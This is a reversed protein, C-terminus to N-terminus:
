LLVFHDAVIVQGRRTGSYNFSLFNTCFLQQPKPLQVQSFYLGKERVISMEYRKGADIFSQCAIEPLKSTLYFRWGKAASQMTTSALVETYLYGAHM